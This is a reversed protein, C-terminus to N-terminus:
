FYIKIRNNNLITFQIYDADAVRKVTSGELTKYIVDDHKGHCFEVFKSVYYNGHVTGTTTTQMKVGRQGFKGLMYQTIMFTLSLMLALTFLIFVYAQANHVPEKVCCFMLIFAFAFCGIAAIGTIISFNKM